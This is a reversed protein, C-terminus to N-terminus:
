ISICYSLGLIYQALDPMKALLGYIEIKSSNSVPCLASVSYRVEDLRDTAPKNLLVFTEVGIMPKIRCSALNYSIKLRNRWYTLWKSNELVNDPYKTLQLRERFAIKFRSIEKCIKLNTYFRHRLEYNESSNKNMLLYGTGINLLSNLDRDGEMGISMRDVSQNNDKTFFEGYLTLESSAIKKSGAADLWLGFDETQASVDNFVMVILVLILSKFDILYFGM